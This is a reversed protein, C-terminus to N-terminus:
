LFSSAKKVADVNTVTLPTTCALTQLNYYTGNPCSICATKNFLPAQPPCPKKPNPIKAIEANTNNLTSNGIEIYKMTKLATTNTYLQPLICASGKLDYLAYSDCAICKKGDFFPKSDDCPFAPRSSANILKEINAITYNDTEKVNTLKKLQAVDSVTVGEVCENTKLKYYKEPPCAYCEKGNFAPKSVDCSVTPLTSNKVAAAINDLTYNGEEFVNDLEYLVDTNAVSVPSVCALTKLNVYTGNPCSGCQKGDFFPSAAPCEIIPKTKNVDSINKKM